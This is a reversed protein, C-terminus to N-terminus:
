EFVKGTVLSFRFMRQKKDIFLGENIANIIIEGSYKQLESKRLICNSQRPVIEGNVFNAVLEWDNKLEM